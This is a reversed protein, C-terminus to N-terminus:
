YSCEGGERKWGVCRVLDDRTVMDEEDEVAAGPNGSKKLLQM